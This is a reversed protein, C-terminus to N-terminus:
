ESHGFTNLIPGCGPEPEDLVPGHALHLFVADGGLGTGRPGPLGTAVLHAVALAAACAPTQDLSSTGSM